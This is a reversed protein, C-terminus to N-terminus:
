GKWQGECCYLLSWGRKARATKLRVPIGRLFRWSNTREQRKNVAWDSSWCCRSYSLGPDRVSGAKVFAEISIFLKATHAARCWLMRCRNSFDTCAQDEAKWPLLMNLAMNRQLPQMFTHQALQFANWDFWGTRRSRPTVSLVNTYFALPISFAWHAIFWPPWRDLLEDHFLCLSPHWSTLSSSQLLTSSTSTIKIRM